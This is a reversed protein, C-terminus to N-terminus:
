KFIVGEVKFVIGAIICLVYAIAVIVWVPIKELFSDLNIM